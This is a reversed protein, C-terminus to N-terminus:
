TIRGAISITSTEILEQRIERIMNSEDVFVVKPKHSACEDEPIQVFSAIIVIDGPNVLHAAAGNICIEKSKEKGVVAYTELRTGSTVNWISVAENPYIDAAHMLEPPLTISGEYELNAQTVTARHIKSGLLKRYITPNAM